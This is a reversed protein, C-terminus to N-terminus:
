ELNMGNYKSMVRKFDQRCMEGAASVALRIVEWTIQLEEDPIEGLVFDVMDSMEPKPGIGIRIRPFKNTGLEEIISKIGNHGGDTGNERIRLKGVPIWVDDYVVVVTDKDTIGFNKKLTRVAIGSANMYTLPKAVVVDQGGSSLKWAEYLPHNYNEKVRRKGIFEDVFLFGVNHRTLVYRPGPNGLGVFLFM